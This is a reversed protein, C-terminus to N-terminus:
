RHIDDRYKGQNEFLMSLYSKYRSEAIDNQKVAEVVKCGPEHTHTCNYYKCDNQLKLMEPFYTALNENDLDVLGFGKIGPTDIILGGFNLEFAESFTTTHKGKKHYDSIDNTKLSLAPDISNVLTSKGVGSNGSIVTSKDKLIGKLEEINTKQLASARMCQYGIKQYIGIWEEMKVKDDDSYIDVKNFIILVPIGYAEASILFRDIFISHTEPFRITVLLIALDVNVAIIQAKHSLNISKRIIYNKRNHIHTIIGTNEEKKIEFDVKDGVAVPNTAVFGKVRFNGKIRCETIQQNSLVRYWSGTSKIVIGTNVM